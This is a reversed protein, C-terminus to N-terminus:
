VTWGNREDVLWAIFAGVADPLSEEIARATVQPTGWSSASYPRPVPLAVVAPQDTAAPRSEELAVYGAQLTDANEQMAGRFAANVFRQIEPVSRYSTTLKLLRAGRGHL